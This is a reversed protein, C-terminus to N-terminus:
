QSGAEAVFSRRETAAPENEEMPHRASIMQLVTREVQGVTIEEICRCGGSAFYAHDKVECPSCSKELAVAITSRGLPLHTMPDTPAFLACVPIGLASAIHMPGSDNSVFVSCDLMGRAMEEISGGTRNEAGEVYEEAVGFCAVSVGAGTLRRVFEPFHPWRKSLWRGQKSGAHVGVLPRSPPHYRLEAVFYRAADEEDYPIGLLQKAAELNFVTENLGGPRFRRWQQASCVRDASIGFRTPGASHTVFVTRYHGSFVDEAPWVANVFEGNRVLFDSGPADAALLVDVRNGTRLALNRITPTVHLIDGIGGGAVVLIDASEGPQRRPSNQDLLQAIIRERRATEPDQPKQARLQECVKRAEAVNNQALSSDVLARLARLSSPTSEVACRGFIASESYDGAERLLDSLGISAESRIAADSSQAAARLASVLRERWAERNERFSDERDLRLLFKAMGWHAQMRGDDHGSARQLYSFAAGDDGVRRMAASAALNAQLSRPNAAAAATFIPTALRLWRRSLAFRGLLLLLRDLGVFRSCTLRLPSVDSEANLTLRPTSPPAALRSLSERQIEAMGIIRVSV